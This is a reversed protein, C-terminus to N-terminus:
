DRAKARTRQMAGEEFARVIELKSTDNSFGCEGGQLPPTSAVGLFYRSADMSLLPRPPRESAINGIADSPTPSWGTQAFCPHQAINEQDRLWGEKALLPIDGVRVGRVIKV